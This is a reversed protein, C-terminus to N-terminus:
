TDRPMDECAGWRFEIDDGSTHSFRYCFHVRYNMGAIGDYEIFGLIYGSEQSNLISSNVDGIIETVQAPIVSRLSEISSFSDTFIPVNAIRYHIELLACETNGVNEIRFPLYAAGGITSITQQWCRLRGREKALFAASSKASIANAEGMANTARGTDQVAERTLMIQWLLLGTGIMTVLASFATVVLIWFAWLASAEQAALDRKEKEDSNKPDATSAIREAFYPLGARDRDIQSPNQQESTETSYARKESQNPYNPAYLAGFFAGTGLSTVIVALGALAILVCRYSRPM